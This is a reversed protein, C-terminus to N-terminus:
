PRDPVCLGDASCSLTMDPPHPCDADSSCTPICAKGGKPTQSCSCGGRAGQPCAGDKSCDAQTSCPQPGQGGPNRGGPGQEGPNQGGPGQGGPNQGGPGQGGPNQSGDGPAGPGGVPAPSGSSPATAGSRVLRVYNQIRIADGQPGRGQPFSKPDGSKPDSRQCGAGHVDRWSGGMYGLARGFSVYVATSGMGNSAVHTTSTWYSPFDRQGAENTIATATFIPDVAASSSTDPSRSYDVISQLEKANPLRWDDHGLHRKSNQEAVWALAQQWGMGKGSDAKSWVLGTSRDAVTGDGNGVFSNKGYSSNGRVCIVFFTKDGRGPLSLGYGKIRGDAFNVGFLLREAATSVYLTSSLYQADIVREGASTDGYAFKFFRTDIFPELSSTDNSNVSPDTGVFTILSYLEKISPLRWDSFGGFRSGNLKSPLAQAQSWTLKDAATLSGDGSTDPSRQWTLRTNNDLVTLTDQSLTYSASFGTYQADQGHFAQGASPCSVASTQGYCATQGTDVLPYTLSAPSVSGVIGPTGGQTSGDSPGDSDISSCSALALAM